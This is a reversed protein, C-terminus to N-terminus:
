RITIKISMGVKKPGCISTGTASYRGSDAPVAGLTM